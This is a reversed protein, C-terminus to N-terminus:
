AYWWRVLTGGLKSVQVTAEVGDLGCSHHSRHASHLFNHQCTSGLGASASQNAVAKIMDGVRQLSCSVLVAIYCQLQGDQLKNAFHNKVVDGLCGEKLCTEHLEGHLNPTLSARHGNPTFCAAEEEVQAVQHAVPTREYGLSAYVM